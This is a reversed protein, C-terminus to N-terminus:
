VTSGEEMCTDNLESLAPEQRGQYVLRKELVVTLTHTLGGRGSMVSSSLLALTLKRNGESM